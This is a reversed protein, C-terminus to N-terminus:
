RDLVLTKHLHLFFFFFSSYLNGRYEPQVLLTKKICISHCQSTFVNVTNYIMLQIIPM